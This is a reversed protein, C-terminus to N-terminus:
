VAMQLKQLMKIAKILDAPEGGVILNELEDRFKGYQDGGEVPFGSAAVAKSMDVPLPVAGVITQRDDAGVSTPRLQRLIAKSLRELDEKSPPQPAYLFHWSTLEGRPLTLVALVRLLVQPDDASLHRPLDLYGLRIAMDEVAAASPNTTEIFQM